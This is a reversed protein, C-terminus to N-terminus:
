QIVSSGVLKGGHMFPGQKSLVDDFAGGRILSEEQEENPIMKMLRAIDNSLMSDVKKLYFDDLAKFKAFDQHKLAEQMKAVDPFDGPTIQYKKQLNTFITPLTKILDKKKADKGFM